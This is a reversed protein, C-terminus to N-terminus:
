KKSKKCKYKIRWERKDESESSSFWISDSNHGSNTSGIVAEGEELIVPTKGGCNEKMKQKADARADGGIGEQVMIIGSKGPSKKVERITACASLHIAMLTIAFFTSLKNLYSEKFLKKM